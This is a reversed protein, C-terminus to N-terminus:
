IGAVGLIDVQSDTLSTKGTIVNELRAEGRVDQSLAGMTALAQSEAVAAPDWQEGCVAGAWDFNADSTFKSKTGSAKLIAAIEHALVLM